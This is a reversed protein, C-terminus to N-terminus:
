MCTDSTYVCTQAPIQGNLKGAITGRQINGTHTVVPLVITRFGESFSGPAAMSRASIAM